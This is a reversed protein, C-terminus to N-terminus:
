LKVDRNLCKVEIDPNLKKMRNIIIQCYKPDLEMMYCKRSLQECAVMTSGSGGFLDIVSQNPKSSNNIAKSCLEIPKPTPHNGDRETPRAIDWVDAQSNDGCWEYIGNAGFAILEYKPRYGKKGSLGFNNKNWVITRVFNIGCNKIASIFEVQTKQDYCIYFSGNAKLCLNSISKELFHRLEEDRLNDNEIKRINKKEVTQSRGGAASVGYPPDTFCMDVKEEKLLDKWVTAYDTSDGCMLRHNGIEFVDGEVIDTEVTNADDAEIEEPETLLGNQILIDDIEKENFGTLAVDYGADQLEDFESAIAAFDWESVTSKNDMIRFAKVDEESLNELVLCPVELMGISQAALLRGHGAIVENNNDVIIPNNFGFQKISNAITEVQEEPHMKNNKGYPKLDSVLKRTINQNIKIQTPSEM